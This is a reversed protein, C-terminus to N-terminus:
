SNRRRRMFISAPLLGLSMLIASSPEPVKEVSFRYLVASDTSFTFGVNTGTSDLYAEPNAHIVSQSDNISPSTWILLGSALALNVDSASASYSGLTVDNSNYGSLFSSIDSSQSVADPEHLFIEVINVNNITGSINEDGGGGMALLYYTTEGSLLDFNFSSADTLQDGWYSNNQYILRSVDTDTGAFLAFDNDAIIQVTFASATSQAMLIAATAGALLLPTKNKRIKMNTITKFRVKKCSHM